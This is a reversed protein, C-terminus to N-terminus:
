NVVLGIVIKEIRSKKKANRLIFAMPFDERVEAVEFLGLKEIFYPIL